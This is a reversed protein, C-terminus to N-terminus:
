NEREWREIFRNIEKNNPNFEVQNASQHENIFKERILIYGEDYEFLYEDLLSGEIVYLGLGNKAFENALSYIFQQSVILGDRM